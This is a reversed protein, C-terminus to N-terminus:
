RELPKLGVLIDTGLYRDGPVEVWAREKPLRIGHGEYVGELAIIEGKAETADRYFRYGVLASTKPDFDFYWVDTGVEPDYTVKLRWVAKGDLEAAAVGDWRTGPDRLKMPLGWLYTYYDRMRVLGACDLRRNKRTEADVEAAPKGDLTVDSCRSLPVSWSAANLGSPPLSTM